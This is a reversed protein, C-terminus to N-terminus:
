TNSKSKDYVEALKLKLKRVDINKGCKVCAIYPIHCKTYAIEVAKHDCFTEKLYQKIFSLM